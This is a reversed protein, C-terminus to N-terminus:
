GGRGPSGTKGNHIPESSFLEIFDAYTLVFSRSEVGMKVENLCFVQTRLWIDSLM